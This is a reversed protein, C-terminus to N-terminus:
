VAAEYAKTGDSKVTKLADEAQKIIAISPFQTLQAQETRMPDFTPVVRRKRLLGDVVNQVGVRQKVSSGLDEIMGDLPYIFAVVLAILAIVGCTISLWNKKVIDM